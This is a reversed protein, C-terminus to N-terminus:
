QRRLFTQVNSTFSAVLNGGNELAFILRIYNIKMIDM